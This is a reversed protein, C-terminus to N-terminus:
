LIMALLSALERAEPPPLEESYGVELVGDVVRLRGSASEMMRISNVMRRQEAPLIALAAEIAARHLQESSQKSEVLVAVEAERVLLTKGLTELQWLEGANGAAEISAAEGELRVGSRLILEVKRRAAVAREFASRM